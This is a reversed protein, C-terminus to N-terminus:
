QWSSVKIKIFANAHSLDRVTLSHPLVLQDVQTYSHYTIQWRRCALCQPSLQQIYGSENLQIIDDKDPLAKIWNILLGVPIDWGSVDYLLQQADDAVYENDDAYLTAKAPTINLELLKIGLSNTLKVESVEPTQQWRVSASFGEKGRRYALRGSLKWQKFNSLAAQQAQWGGISKLAEQTVPRNGACGALILLLTIYFVFQQLKM